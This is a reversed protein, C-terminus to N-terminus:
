YGNMNGYQLYYIDWVCLQLSDKPAMRDKHASYQMLGLDMARHEIIKPIAICYFIVGCLLTYLIYGVLKKLLREM